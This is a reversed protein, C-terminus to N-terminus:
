SVVDNAKFLQARTSIKGEPKLGSLEKQLAAYNLFPPIVLIAFLLKALTSLHRTFGKSQYEKM